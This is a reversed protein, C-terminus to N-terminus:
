LGGGVFGDYPGYRLELCGGAIFRIRRGLPIGPVAGHILFSVRIM